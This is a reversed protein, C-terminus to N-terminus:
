LADNSSIARVEADLERIRESLAAVSAIRQDIALLGDKGTANELREVELTLIHLRVRRQQDNEQRKKAVWGEASGYIEALRAQLHITFEDRFLTSIERCTGIARSCLREQASSSWEFFQETESVSELGQRGIGFFIGTRTHLITKLEHTGPLDELAGLIREAYRSCEQKFLTNGAESLPSSFYTYSSFEIPGSMIFPHSTTAKIFESTPFLDWSKKSFAKRADQVTGAGGDKFTALRTAADALKQDLDRHAREVDNVSMRLQYRERRARRATALSDAQERLSATASEIQISLRELQSAILQLQGGKSVASTIREISAIGSAEAGYRKRLSPTNLQSDEDELDELRRQVARRTKSDITERVSLCPSTFRAWDEHKETTTVIAACWGAQRYWSLRKYDGLRRALETKAEGGDLGLADVRTLVLAGYPNSLADDFQSWDATVNQTPAQDSRVAYIWADFRSAERLALWRRGEDPDHTGPTDIITAHSLLSSRLHVIVRELGQVTGDGDDINTFNVLESLPYKETASLTLARRLGSIHRAHVAINPAKTRAEIEAELHEPPRPTVTVHEEEGFTLETICATSNGSSSSLVLRGLMGNILMSKGAGTVGVIGIRPKRERLADLSHQWGEDVGPLFDKNETSLVVWKEIVRRAADAKPSPRWAMTDRGSSASVYSVDIIELDRFAAGWRVHWHLRILDLDESDGELSVDNHVASWDIQGNFALQLTRVTEDAADLISSYPYEIRRDSLKLPGGDRSITLSGAALAVHFQKM